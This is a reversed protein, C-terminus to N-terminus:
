FFKLCLDRLERQLYSHVKNPFKKLYALDEEVIGNTRLEDCKTM